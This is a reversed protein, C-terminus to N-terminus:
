TRHDQGRDGGKPEESNLSKRYTLIVLGGATTLNDVLELDTRPGGDRFLRKGGNLVVPHIWLQYKDILGHDALSQALQSSGLVFIPRGPQGKLRAVEVPVDRLVTTGERSSKELTRSAVYKPRTNLARAIEDDEDTVTPWYEAWIDYTLRGLLFAGATQFLESNYRAHEEM